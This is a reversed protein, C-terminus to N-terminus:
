GAVEQNARELLARMYGLCYTQGALSGYQGPRTGPWHDPIMYCDNNVERLAKMIQYMDYYGDDPWTEYFSPMTASVNRFHVKFLKGQEGFYRIFTLPDVGWVAEGGQLLNGVGCCVGVNPSDAIELARKYGEFSSAVVRPVNGLTLGPPDEPHIGIRVGAEEAVPAVARIFYTYNDWLEEETYLRDFSFTKYSYSLDPDRPKSETFSRTLAGGRAEVLETTTVGTAMFSITRYNLGARGMARLSANYAEIVADRGPLGLVVDENNSISSCPGIKV